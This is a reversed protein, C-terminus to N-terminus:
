NGGNYLVEVTDFFGELGVVFDVELVPLVRELSPVPSLGLEGFLFQV